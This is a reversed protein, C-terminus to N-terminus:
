RNLIGQVQAVTGYCLKLWYSTNNKGTKIDSVERNQDYLLIPELSCNIISQNTNAIPKLNIEDFGILETNGWFEVIIKDSSRNSSSRNHPFINIHKSNNLESV